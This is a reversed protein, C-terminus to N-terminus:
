YAPHGNAAESRRSDLVTPNANADQSPANLTMQSSIATQSAATIAATINKQRHAAIIPRYSSVVRSQATLGFLEPYLAQTYFILNFTPYEVPDSFEQRVTNFADRQAPTLESYREEGTVILAEADRSSWSECGGLTLVGLLLPLALIQRRLAIRNRRM